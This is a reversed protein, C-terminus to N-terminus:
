CATAPLRAFTLRTNVISYKMRRVRARAAFDLTQGFTLQPFHVDTKAQYFCEGKFDKHMTEKPIGQYNPYSDEALYFGSTEGSTTKLLTSCGSHNNAIDASNKWLIVQRGPRGLVLLMEGSKVLGDFDSLIQIRTKQERGVLRKGLSLFEFPYNGFTKQYDTSEGFGHVSLNEYAVGAVRKHYREPDRLVTSKITELGLISSFSGSTPDLVPNQSGFFPNVQEGKENRVGGPSSRSM